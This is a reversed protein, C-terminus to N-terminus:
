ANTHIWYFQNIAKIMLLLLIMRSTEHVVYRKPAGPPDLERLLELLGRGVKMGENM